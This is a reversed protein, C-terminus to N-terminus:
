APDIGIGSDGGTVLAVKGLLKDAARYRPQPQLKSELGPSQQNQPPFPPTPQSHKQSKGIPM